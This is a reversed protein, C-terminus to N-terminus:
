KSKKALFKRKTSEGGRIHKVDIHYALIEAVQEYKEKNIEALRIRMDNHVTSKSVGFKNAVERITKKTNILYESEDVVREYIYNNM